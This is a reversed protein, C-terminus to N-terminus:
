GDRGEEVVIAGYFDFARKIDNSGTTVFRPEFNSVGYDDIAQPEQM